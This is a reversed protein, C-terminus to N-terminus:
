DLKITYIHRTRLGNAHVGEFELKAEEGAPWMVKGWTARLRDTGPIKKVAAPWITIGNDGVHVIRVRVTEFAGGGLQMAGFELEVPGKLVSGPRLEALGAADRVMPSDPLGIPIVFAMFIFGAFCGVSTALFRPTLLM